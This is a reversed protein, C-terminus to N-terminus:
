TYGLIDTVSPPIEIFTKKEDPAEEGYFVTRLHTICENMYRSFAVYETLHHIPRFTRPDESVIARMMDGRYGRVLNLSQEISNNYEMAKNVRMLQTKFNAESSQNMMFKTRIQLTATEFNIRTPMSAAMQFHSGARETHHLSQMALALADKMEKMAINKYNVSRMVNYIHITDCGTLADDSVPVTGERIWRYYLPNSNGNRDIRLTKWNFATFCSVCFMDACGDIRYIMTSCHPCPKSDKKIQEVSLVDNEDCVHGDVKEVMCKTCYVTHCLGCIGKNTIFGKCDDKGCPRVHYVREVPVEENTEPDVTVYSRTTRNCYRLFDQEIRRKQRGVVAQRQSITAIQLKIEKMQDNLRKLEEAQGNHETTLRIYEQTHPFLAKQEQYLLEKKTDNIRKVCSAGFTENVYQHNWPRQCQMCRPATTSVELHRRLCKSCCEYNCSSCVIKRRASKNFEETCVNCSM